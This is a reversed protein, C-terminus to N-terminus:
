AGRERFSRVLHGDADRWITSNPFARPASLPVTILWFNNTVKVNRENPGRHWRLTVSAVGDPVLASVTAGHADGSTLVTRNNLLAHADAFGSGGGSRPGFEFMGLGIIRQRKRQERRSRALVRRQHPSLGRLCRDPPIASNGSGPVLYYTEGHRGAGLKRVYDIALLHFLGGTLDHDPLDDPQQPRRLVAMQSVLEAPPARHTVHTTPQQNCSRRAPSASAPMLLVVGAIAIALACKRM